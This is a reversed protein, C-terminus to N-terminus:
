YIRNGSKRNASKKKRDNKKEHGRKPHNIQRCFYNNIEIESNKKKCAYIAERLAYYMFPSFTSSAAFYKKLFIQDSCLNAM